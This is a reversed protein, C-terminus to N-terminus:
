ETTVVVFPSDRLRETAAQCITMEPSLLNLENWVHAFMLHGIASDSLAALKRQLRAAMLLSGLTERRTTVRIRLAV